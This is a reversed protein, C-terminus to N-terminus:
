YYIPKTQEIIVRTAGNEIWVVPQIDDAMAKVRRLESEIQQQEARLAQLRQQRERYVSAAYTGVVLLLTMAMAAAM